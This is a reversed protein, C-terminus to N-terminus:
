KVNGHWLFVFGSVGELGGNFYPRMEYKRSIEEAGNPVVRITVDRRWKPETNAWALRRKADEEDEPDDVARFSEDVGHIGFPLSADDQMSRWAFMEIKPSLTCTAVSGSTFRLVADNLSGADLQISLVVTHNQLDLNILPSRLLQRKIKPSDEVDIGSPLLSSGNATNFAEASKASGIPLVSSFHDDLILVLVAPKDAYKGTALFAILPQV